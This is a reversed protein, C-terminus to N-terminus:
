FELEKAILQYEKDSYGKATIFSLLVSSAFMTLHGEQEVWEQYEQMLSKINM